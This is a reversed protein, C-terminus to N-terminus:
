MHNGENTAHNADLSTPHAELVIINAEGMVHEVLVEVYSYGKVAEVLKIVDKDNTLFHKGIAFTQRSVKWWLCKFSVYGLDKIINGLEILSPM